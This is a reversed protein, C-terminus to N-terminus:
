LPRSSQSTVLKRQQLWKSSMVALIPWLTTNVIDHVSASWRMYGLSRMDDRLDLCEMAVAVFIVPLLSWYDLRGRRWLIVAALFVALGIHMHIADKSLDLVELITLKISQYTSSTM